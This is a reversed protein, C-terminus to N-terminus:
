KSEIGVAEFNCGPYYSALKRLRAQQQGSLMEMGRGVRGQNFRADAKKDNSLILGQVPTGYFSAIREVCKEPEKIMEEYRVQLIVDSYSRMARQWGVFFNFYWPMIHDIIFDFQGVPSINQFWDPEMYAMSLEPSEKGMHDRLSVVVDDLRRTLVVIKVSFARCIRLLIKSYRIHQQIFLMRKGWSQFLVTIDIEQENRDAELYCRNPPLALKEELVLTLWTSGSKPMCALLLKPTEDIPNLDKEDAHVAQNLKAGMQGAAWILQEREMQVTYPHAVQLQVDNKKQDLATVQSCM